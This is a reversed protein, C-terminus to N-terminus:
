TDGTILREYGMVSGDNREAAYAADAARWEHM